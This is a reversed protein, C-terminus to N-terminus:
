TADVDGKGGASGGPDSVVSVLADVQALLMRAQPASLGSALACDLDILCRQAPMALWDPILAHEIASQLRARAAVLRDHIEGDM